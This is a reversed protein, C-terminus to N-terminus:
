FTKEYLVVHGQNEMIFPSVYFCLNIRTPGLFCFEKKTEQSNERKIIKSFLCKFFVVDMQIKILPIMKPRVNYPTLM